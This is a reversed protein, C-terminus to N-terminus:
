LCHAFASRRGTPISRCARKRRAWHPLPRGRDRGADQSRRGELHAAVDEPLKRPDIFLEAQGEQAPDCLRARGAYLSRRQRPHQLGLRGFRPMTLVVADAGAKALAKSVDALKDASSKRRCVPHAPCDIAADASAGPPGSWIADIPNDRSRSRAQRGGQRLGERVQRGRDATLLWPDIAWCKAPKKLENEMWEAPPDDVLHHPSFLGTDVQQRVQITYRGDVFIAGKKLMLIAM